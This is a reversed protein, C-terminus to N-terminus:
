KLCVQSALTDGSPLGDLSLELALVPPIIGMTFIGRELQFPLVIHLIHQSNLYGYNLIFIGM